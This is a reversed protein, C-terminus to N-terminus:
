LVILGPYNYYLTYLAPAAAFHTLFYFSVGMGISVPLAPVPADLYFMGALTIALGVLVAIFCVFVTFAGSNTAQLILVSYFIFDGLGMRMSDELRKRVRPRVVAGPAAAAAAAPSYGRPRAVAGGSSDLPAVAGDSASETVPGPARRRLRAQPEARPASEYVLGPMQGGSKNVAKILQNLCGNPSLVSYLDYLALAVLMIWATWEPVMSVWYAIISSIIILYAQRLFLPGQYYVVCVGVVAFNWMCYMLTVWDIIIRNKAVIQAMIVTGSFFLISATSVMMMGWVVKRLKFYLAVLMLMTLAVVVGVFILANVLSGLFRESSSEGETEENVVYAPTQQYPDTDGQQLLWDLILALLMAASVPVLLDLLKAAYGELVDDEPVLWKQGPPLAALAAAVAPHVEDGGGEGGKEEDGDSMGEGRGSTGAGVGGELEFAQIVRPTAPVSMDQVVAGGCPDGEASDCDCDTHCDSDSHSDSDSESESESDSESESHSHSDSESDARGDTGGVSRGVSRGVLGLTRNVHRLKWM